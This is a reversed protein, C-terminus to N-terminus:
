VVTFTPPFFYILDDKMETRITQFYCIWSFFELTPPIAQKQPSFDAQMSCALASRQISSNSLQITIEGHKKPCSRSTHSAPTTQMHLAPLSACFLLVNKVETCGGLIKWDPYNWRLRGAIATGLWLPGSNGASDRHTPLCERSGSNFSLWTQHSGALVSSLKLFFFGRAGFLQTKYTFIALACGIPKLFGCM